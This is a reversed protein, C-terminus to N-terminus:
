YLRLTMDDGTTMLFPKKLCTTVSTIARIHYPEYLYSIKGTDEPKDILHMKMLQGDGTVYVLRNQSVVAMASIRFMPAGGQDKLFNAWPQSEDIGAPLQAAIRDYPCKVSTSPEYAIIKGWNSAVLFGQGDPQKVMDRIAFNQQFGPSSGLVMKYEGSLEAILIEGAITSILIRKDFWVHTTYHTSAQCKSKKVLVPHTIRM